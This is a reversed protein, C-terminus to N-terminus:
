NNDRPLIGYTFFRSFEMVLEQPNGYLQLLKPDTIIESMKNMMILMGEPKFDKRFWGNKQALKFDKILNAWVEVSRKEVYESLGLEPNKYFDMLFDRSIENTSDAKFKLMLEVKQYATTSKDSIISKFKHIGDDVVEDYVAKAIEIKNEFYRYFTMKSVGSKQCIEEISVKKFGHKWFLEKATSTLSHYKKGKHM